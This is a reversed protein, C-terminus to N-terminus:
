AAEPLLLHAYRHPRAQVDAPLESLPVHTFRRGGLRFLDRRTRIRDELWSTNRMEPTDFEAHAFSALKMRIAEVGGQYTFHWGGAVPGVPPRRKGDRIAQAGLRWVTEALALGICRFPKPTRLNLYYFYCGAAFGVWQRPTLWALQQAVLEASPIEDVDSIIVADDPHQHILLDKLVHRTQRERVWRDTTEMAPLITTELRGKWPAWRADEVDLYIPKPLGSHTEVSQVAIFRDVLGDLERLRLELIDLENFFPFCDVIV